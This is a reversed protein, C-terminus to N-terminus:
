MGWVDIKKGEYTETKRFIKEKWKKKPRRDFIILHADESGCRDMYEATQKLGESITQKLSKYLIKLEIVVKQTGRDHKWIILLDTRKRGLGYERDIRGGSNVIRQLFAQLLLQPGAERYDFRELWIESNEQFFEQFATLLASTDLRRDPLVYWSQQFLPELNYQTITTLERPIIERYIANSIELGSASRRILGLDTLYEIDDQAINELSTGELVPGIVRRVRDEKLKDTLQDLHTERRQILNEKAQIIMDKTIPSSRDKGEKMRFCAEYGLANVLWPQGQSYEWILSQAEPEFIQGTDNVHEELL